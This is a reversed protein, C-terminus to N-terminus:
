TIEAEVVEALVGCRSKWPQSSEERVVLGRRKEVGCGFAVSLGM